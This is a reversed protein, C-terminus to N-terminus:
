KRWTLQTATRGGTKAAGAKGAAGSGGQALEPGCEECQSQSSGGGGTGQFANKNNELDETTASETEGLNGHLQSPQQLMWVGNDDVM